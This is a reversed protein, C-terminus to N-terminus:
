ALKTADPFLVSMEKSSGFKQCFHALFASNSISAKFPLTLSLDWESGRQDLGFTGKESTGFTDATKKLVVQNNVSWSHPLLGPQVTCHFLILQHFKWVQFTIRFLLRACLRPPGLVPGLTIRPTLAKSNLLIQKDIPLDSEYSLHFKIKFITLSASSTPASYRHTHKQSEGHCLWAFPKAADRIRGLTTQNFHEFNNLDEQIQLPVLKDRLSNHWIWIWKNIIVWFLTEFNCFRKRSQRWM